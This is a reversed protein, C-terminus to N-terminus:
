SLSAFGAIFFLGLLLGLGTALLGPWLGGVWGAILVAPVFFLYPAEDRLIPALLIRVALAMVIAAVAAGYQGIVPRVSRWRSGAPGASGEASKAAVDAM